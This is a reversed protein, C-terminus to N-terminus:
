EKKKGKASSYKDKSNRASKKRSRQGKNSNREKNSM